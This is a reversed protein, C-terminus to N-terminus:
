QAVGIKYKTSMVDLVWNPIVGSARDVPEYVVVDAYEKDDYAVIMCGDRYYVDVEPVGLIDSEVNRIAGSVSDNLMCEELLERIEQKYDEPDAGEGFYDTKFSIDGGHRPWELILSLVKGALYSRYMVIAFAEKETYELWALQDYLRVRSFVTSRSVGIVDGINKVFDSWMAFRPAAGGDGYSIEEKYLGSDKIRWVRYLSLEKLRSGLHSEREMQEIEEEYRGLSPLQFDTNLFALNSSM